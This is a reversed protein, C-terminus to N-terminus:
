EEERAANRDVIEKVILEIGFVLLMILVLINVRKLHLQLLITAIM